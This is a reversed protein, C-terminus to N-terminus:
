DNGRRRRWGCVIMGAAGMGVLMVAAPEPVPSEKVVHYIEDGPRHNLQLRGGMLGTIAASHPMGDDPDVYWLTGMNTAVDCDDCGTVTLYHAGGNQVFIELDEGARLEDIIFGLTAPTNQQVYDPKPINNNGPATAPQQDDPLPNGMGDRRVQNWQISIQAGFRTSGPAMMDIYSQKGHIFDEIYTGGTSNMFNKALNLATDVMANAMTAPDDKVLRNDYIHPYMNQLFVFSNVAATPGCLCGAFGGMGMDAALQEVDSQDLNGYKAQIMMPDILGVDIPAACLRSSLGTTVLVLLVSPLVVHAAAAVAFRKSRM